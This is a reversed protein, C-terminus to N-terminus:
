LYQHRRVWWCLGGLFLLPLVKLIYLNWLRSECRVRQLLLRLVISAWLCLTICVPLM